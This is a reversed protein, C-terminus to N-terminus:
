VGHCGIAQPEIAEIRTTGDARRGPGCYQSPTGVVTRTNEIMTVGQAVLLLGNGLGHLLCAIGGAVEALPVEVPQPAGAYRDEAVVGMTGTGEAEVSPKGHGIKEIKIGDHAPLSLELIELAVRGLDDHVLGQLENGLFGLGLFREEGHDPVAGRM